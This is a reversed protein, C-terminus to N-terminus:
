TVVDLAIEDKPYNFHITPGAPGAVATDTRIRSGSLPGRFGLLTVMGGRSWRPGRYSDRAPLQHTGLYTREFSERSLHQRGLARAPTLM